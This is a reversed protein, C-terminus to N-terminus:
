FLQLRSNDTDSVHVVGNKDVAIGRPSMFQGPEDGKTGFSTLFKGECTFVSVCHNYRETVYVVNDNDISIGCPFSLERNSCIKKGFQRLFQGEITFVQIRNNGSDTVYVSGTNDFAVDYPSSFQGDGSGYSGFCGSFSLDPNLIQICHNRYDVALIKEGSLAIALGLPCNFESPSSGTLNGDSTFKQICKNEEDAVLINSDGDVAVGHPTNFQGAGSGQTGFSQLKEGTSSFISVCHGGYEAIIIEGRQNVKIGRPMIMGSIIRLPTGLKQIPLKVTVAFPSGKIHESEVKIHLQHRGRSTPKYSIEYQNAEIHLKEVTCMSQKSNTCTPADCTLECTITETPTSCPKGELNVIHLVATTREGAVSVRLGKGTAYCKEPLAQGLYVHGIHKCKQILESLPTFKVNAPECPRLVEPKFNGTLEKIQKMVGKKLKMIEGQSETRLSDKVFTLCNVLQTQITEVEDRQTVLYKLKQNAFQDLQSILEAKRVEQQEYLQQFLQQIETETAARQDNIETSRQNIQVLAENVVGLQKEVSGLSATIEAKHKEFTDDVLSYKHEPRSHKSVICHLCVLEGCTECYLELEKSKHLPCYLTVKKLVDLQTVESELQELAVIEHEAFDDWESHIGTCVACIFQGCDRCYSTAPRQSKTCKGCLVKQPEKVKKLADQIDFLHHIHFASQLDSVDTAPPLLTSRRCAPCCVSLQGLTDQVVLRELCNKCYVHFCHLLKPDKFTDLCIACTLKDKTVAELSEAM